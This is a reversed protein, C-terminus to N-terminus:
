NVMVFINYLVWGSVEFSFFAEDDELCCLDKICVNTAVPTIMGTVVCEVNCNCKRM